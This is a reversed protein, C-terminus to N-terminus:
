RYPMGAIIRCTSPMQEELGDGDLDLEAIIQRGWEMQHRAAAKYRDGDFELASKKAAAIHRPQVHPDEAGHDEPDNM